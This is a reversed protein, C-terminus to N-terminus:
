QKQVVELTKLRMDLERKGSASLPIDLPAVVPHTLWASASIGQYNGM